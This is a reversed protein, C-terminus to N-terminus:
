QFQKQSVRKTQPLFCLVTIYCMACVGIICFFIALAYEGQPIEDRGAYGQIQGETMHSLRSWQVYRNPKGNYTGMGAESPRRKGALPLM